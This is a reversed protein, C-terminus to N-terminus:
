LRREFKWVGSTFIPCIESNEKNYDNKIYKTFNFTIKNKSNYYYVPFLQEEIFEFKGSKLYISDQFDPVWDRDGYVTIEPLQINEILKEFGGIVRTNLKSCYRILESGKFTITSIIEDKALLGFFKDSSAAGQLHNLRLFNYAEKNPLQRFSLEYADYDKINKNLLLNINSKVIEPNHHEWIHYLKVGKELCLKSKLRHYEKDKNLHTYIGNYEFAIKEKPLYIDLELFKNSAPNKIVTRDNSSVEFGLSIIYDRIYIEKRSTNLPYCKPCRPIEFVDDYFSLGCSIHKIKYKKWCLHKGEVTSIRNGSYLDELEYGYKELYPKLEDSRRKYQTESRKEIVSPIQSLSDQGFKKLLTNKTKNKFDESIVYYDLGYKEKVTKKRLEKIKENEIETRLAVSNKFKEVVEPVEMVNETGYRTLNTDKIKKTKQEKVEKSTKLPLDYLSFARKIKKISFGLREELQPFSLGTLYLNHWVESTEKDVNKQYKVFLNNTDFLQQLTKARMKAKKAAARIGHKLYFLHLKKIDM